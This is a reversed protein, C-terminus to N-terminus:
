RTPHSGVTWVFEKEEVAPLRHSYGSHSGQLGWQDLTTHEQDTDHGNSLPKSLARPPGPDVMFKQSVDAGPADCDASVPTYLSAGGSIGSGLGTTLKNSCQSSPACRGTANFALPLIQM